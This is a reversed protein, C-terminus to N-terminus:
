PLYYEQGIEFAIAIEKKEDVAATQKNGNVLSVSARM